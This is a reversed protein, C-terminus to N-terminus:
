SHQGFQCTQRASPLQLDRSLYLSRPKAPVTALLSGATNVVFREDLNLRLCARHYIITVITVAAIM